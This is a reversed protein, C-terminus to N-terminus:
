KKMYGHFYNKFFVTLIDSLLFINGKIINSQIQNVVDPNSPFILIADNDDISSFDPLLVNKGDGDKDWFETPEIISDKLLKMYKTANKGLAGYAIVKSFKGNKFPVTNGLFFDLLSSLFLREINWKIASKALDEFKNDVLRAMEIINNSDLTIYYLFKLKGFCAMKVYNEKAKKDIIKDDVKNIAQITLRRHESIFKKIRELDKSTSHTEEQGNNFRYLSRNIYKVVGRNALLPVFFDPEHSGKSNTTYNETIRCKNFYKTRVIFKWIANPLYDTLFLSLLDIRIQPIVTLEDKYIKGGGDFKYSSYGCMVYDCEGNEGLWGAMASVYEPDLEDDADVCCVYEGSIRELGAKAAACVGSNKQDIIIVEYGREKFKSEYASIIERTGDTSGDNVLILEINDWKQAIISDFMNGIYQFKNYCPMVMSVKGQMIKKRRLGKYSEHALATLCERSWDV